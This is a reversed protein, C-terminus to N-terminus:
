EKSEYLKVYKVDDFSYTPLGKMKCFVNFTAVTDHSCYRSIKYLGSEELTELPKYYLVDVSSGDVDGKSIPIGMAACLAVLSGSTGLGGMKWLEHTCINSQEWPKLATTDLSFPIKLGNIIYRKCLFPYDFFKAAHGVLRSGRKKDLFSSLIELLVKEDHEAIEACVLNGEKDLGSLSVACVKAFEANVASDKGKWLEALVDETPIDKDTKCKYSWAVKYDPSLDEYNDVIRVTEIDIAIVDKLNIPNLVLM